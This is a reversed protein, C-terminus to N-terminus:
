PGRSPAVRQDVGVPAVVPPSVVAPNVRHPDVLGPSTQYTDVAGPTTRYPLDPAPERIIVRTGDPSYIMEARVPAELLQVLALSAIPAAVALLSSMSRAPM